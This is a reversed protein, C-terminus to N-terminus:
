THYSQWCVQLHIFINWLLSLTLEKDGSVIDEGVIISGDEDFLPVGVQKLHQMAIGCNVVNKKRTDSPVVIKQGDLLLTM